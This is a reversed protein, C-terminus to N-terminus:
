NIKFKLNEISYTTIKEEPTEYINAYDVVINGKEFSTNTATFGEANDYAITIDDKLVLNSDMLCLWHFAENDHYREVFFAFGKKIEVVNYVSFTIYSQNEYQYLKNFGLAEWETKNLIYSPTIKQYISDSKPMETLAYKKLRYKLYHDMNPFKNNLQSLYGGFAYGIKNASPIKIKLWKGSVINGGDQLELTKNTEEIVEVSDEYKLKGIIVGKLNPTARVSLGSKATVILPENSKKLEAVQIAKLTNVTTASTESTETTNLKDLYKTENKCSFFGILLVLIIGKYHIHQHNRCILTM